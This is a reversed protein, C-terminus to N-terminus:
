GSTNSTAYLLAFASAAWATVLAALVFCAWALPWSMVEALGDYAETLFSATM